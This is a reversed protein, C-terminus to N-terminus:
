EPSMVFSDKTAVRESWVEGDFVSLEVTYQGPLDPVLAATVETDGALTAVSSGPRYVLRWSYELEITETDSSRSGSYEIAVDVNGTGPGDIVATPAVNEADVFYRHTWRESVGSFIWRDVVFRGRTDPTLVVGSLAGAELDASSGPPVEVLQWDVEVGKAYSSEQGVPLTFSIGVQAVLLESEPDVDGACAHALLALLTLSMLRSPM